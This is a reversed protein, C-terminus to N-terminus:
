DVCTYDNMDKPLLGMIYQSRRPCRGFYMGEDWWPCSIGEAPDCAQCTFQCAREECCRCRCLGAAAQVDAVEDASDAHPCATRLECHINCFHELCGGGSSGPGSCKLVDRDDTGCASCRWQKFPRCTASHAPWQLPVKSGDAARTMAGDSCTGGVQWASRSCAESCYYALKCRSCRLQAEADCQRCRGAVWVSFEMNEDRIQERM